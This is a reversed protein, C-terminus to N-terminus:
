DEMPDSTTFCGVVREKDHLVFWWLSRNGDPSDKKSKVRLHTLRIIAKKVATPTTERYTGWM